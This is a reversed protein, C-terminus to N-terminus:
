GGSSKSTIVANLTGSGSTVTIHVRLDTFPMALLMIDHAGSTGTIDITSGFDLDRWTGNDGNKAQVEVTAALTSSSWTFDISAIDLQDVKSSGSTSDAAVVQNDFFKYSYILTKRAM